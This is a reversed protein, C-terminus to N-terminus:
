FVVSVFIYAEKCFLSHEEIPMCARVHMSLLYFIVTRCIEHCKKNIEILVTEATQM